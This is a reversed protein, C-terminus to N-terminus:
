LRWKVQGQIYYNDEFKVEQVNLYAGTLYTNNNFLNLIDKESYEFVFFLELINENLIQNDLIENFLYLFQYGSLKNIQGKLFQYDLKKYEGTIFQITLYETLYNLRFLSNSLTM